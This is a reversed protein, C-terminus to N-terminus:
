ALSTNLLNEATTSIRLHHHSGDFHTHMLAHPGHEDPSLALAVHGMTRRLNLEVLPHVALEEKDTSVVMLDIGAPGQYRQALAESLLAQLRSQLHRLLTPPLYRGLMQQKDAETALISGTYAGNETRFLSLGEYHVAGDAGVTFELGFDAVKNYKPEVMIGGQQRIINQCWGENHPTLRDYVYRLGRGSSSWPAKLVSERGNEVLRRVEDMTACWHSQGVFQPHSAVLQPLLHEAAFRRHSLERVQQLAEASPLSAGFAPHIARLRHCLAADWGWPDIQLHSIFEYPQTSLQDASVFAVKAAGRGALHRAAATAAEVDDVLVLDGDEAWLTPLFGLDSRLGRAAHPPTFQTANLALAIDHEPNFLHLTM